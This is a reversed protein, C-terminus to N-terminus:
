KSENSYALSPPQTEQQRDLKHKYGPANIEEDNSKRDLRSKASISLDQEGRGLSNELGRKYFQLASDSENLSELLWALELFADNSDGNQVAVEFFSRAMGWLQNLMALRGMCLMLQTNTPHESLWAEAQKLQSGPDATELQGYLEVLEESWQHKLTNRILTEAEQHRNFEKLGRCYSTIIAADKHAKKPLVKWNQELESINKSSALLGTAAQTELTILESEPLVHHRSALALISLLEQWQETETLLRILSKIAAPNAPSKEHLQRATALAQEIQGAQQQLACQSHGIAMETIETSAGDLKSAEAIYDDRKQYEDKQQAIWATALLNIEAQPSDQLRRTLLKEAQAWNGNITEALGKRTDEIAHDRHRRDQWRRVKGPTSFLNNLLRVLLYFIVFTIFLGIAFLTLSTEVSWPERTILVYGPNEVFITLAIGAALALFLLLLFRM